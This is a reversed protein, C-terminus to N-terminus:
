PEKKAQGKAKARAKPEFRELQSRVEAPSKRNRSPIEGPSTVGPGLLYVRGRRSVPGAAHRFGGVNVAPTAWPNRVEFRTPEKWDAAAKFLFREITQAAASHVGGWVGLATLAGIWWRTARVQMTALKRRVM